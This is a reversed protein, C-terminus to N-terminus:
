YHWRSSSDNWDGMDRAPVSQLVWAGCGTKYGGVDVGLKELRAKGAESTEVEWQGNGRASVVGTIGNKNMLVRLQRSTVM